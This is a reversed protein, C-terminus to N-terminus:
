KEISYEGKGNSSWQHFIKEGAKSSVVKIEDSVMFASYFGVGFHGVLNLDNNKKNNFQELFKETGSKAITGLNSILDEENMGIGNDIISLLNNKRDIEIRISLENKEANTLNPNHILHYRLKDCADSANSILERLFIEKNTYISNIMLNLVKGVEADFKKIKKNSEIMRGM